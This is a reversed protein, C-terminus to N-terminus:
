RFSWGPACAEGLSPPFDGTRSPGPRDLLTSPSGSPVRASSSALGLSFRKILRADAPELRCLGGQDGGVWISGLGAAGSSGQCNAAKGRDKALNTAPDIM